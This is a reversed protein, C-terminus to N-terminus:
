ALDAVYDRDWGDSLSVDLETFSGLIDLLEASVAVADEDEATVRMLAAGVANETMVRLLTRGCPDGIGTDRRWADEAKMRYALLAQDLTAKASELAYRDIEVDGM